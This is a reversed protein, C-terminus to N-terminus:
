VLSMEFGSPTKMTQFDGVPNRNPDVFYLKLPTKHCLYSSLSNKLSFAEFDAFSLAHYGQLKAWKLSHSLLLSMADQREQESIGPKFTLLTMYTVQFEEGEKPLKIWPSLIRFLINLARPLRDLRMKKVLRPSWLKTFGILEDGRYVGFHPFENFGPWSLKRWEWENHTARFSFGLPRPASQVLALINEEAPNMKIALGKNFRAWPLQSFVNVMQYREFLHYGLPSKTELAKQALKNDELICTYFYRCDKLESLQHKKNLLSSYFERWVRASLRPKIFRLDGLYGVKIVENEHLALRVVISGAGIINGQDDRLIFVYFCDSHARLLAFFDPRRLYTLTLTDGKMAKNEFFDCLELSDAETGLSVNKFGAVFDKLNILDM